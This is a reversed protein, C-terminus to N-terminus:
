RKSVDFKLPFSISFFFNGKILKFEVTRINLIKKNIGYDAWNRARSFTNSFNDYKTSNIREPIFDKVELFYCRTFM